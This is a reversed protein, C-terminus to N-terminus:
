GQRYNYFSWWTVHCVAPTNLQASGGTQSAVMVHRSVSGPHEVLASRASAALTPHLSGQSATLRGHIKAAAGDRKGGQPLLPCVHRHDVKEDEADDAHQPPPDDPEPLSSVRQQQHQRASVGSLM